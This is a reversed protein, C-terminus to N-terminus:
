EKVKIERSIVTVISFSTIVFAAWMNSAPVEVGDILAVATTIGVAILVNQIMRLVRM